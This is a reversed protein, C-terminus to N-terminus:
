ELRLYTDYLLERTEAHTYDAPVVITISKGQHSSPEDMSPFDWPQSYPKIGAAPKSHLQAKVAVVFSELSSSSKLHDRRHNWIELDIAALLSKYRYKGESLSM